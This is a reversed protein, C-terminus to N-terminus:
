VGPDFAIVETGNALIVEGGPDSDLNVVALGIDQANHITGLAHTWIVENSGNVAYVSYPPEVEWFQVTAFVVDLVGDGDIDGLAHIGSKTRDWLEVGHGDLAISIGPFSSSLVVEMAGDGTIDGVSLFMGEQEQAAIWELNGGPDYATVQGGGSIIEATGDGDVDAILVDRGYWSKEISWLVNGTQGDLLFVMNDYNEVAVEMDGDGDVDRADIGQGYGGGLSTEWLREGTAGDLLVAQGGGWPYTGASAVVDTDGDGDVDGYALDVVEVDDVFSQWIRSGSRDLACVIGRGGSDFDGLSTAVVELIGDGNVDVIDAKVSKETEPTMQYSWLAKGDRGDLIVVDGSDVGVAIEPVGDENLDGTAYGDGWSDIRLLANPSAYTWLIGAGPLVTPVPTELLDTPEPPVIVGTPEPTDPQGTPELTLLKTPSAQDTKVPTEKPEGTLLNPLLIGLIVGVVGLALVAGAIPWLPLKRRPRTEAAGADALSVGDLAPPQGGGAVDAEEAATPLLETAPLERKAREPVKEPIAERVARVFEGADAFRGEADKALAKLILREVAEPLSPNLSRPPPLPDHLHKVFIAPPTEAKFPPRGTAMEYLIIGLSYIDSRGDLKEGKIQEPSMYAPTGLIAGTQTFKTTKEVIKAIGFDTLLCNGIEDILINTPKVDRHVLGRAHAYALADGVQSLIKRIQKLPLPDGVLLSALTGTEVFPMVIYTYGDQTGFDHVPLIHVHQLSAIVKAEQEFRGVFEPDSAFHRPLIKLAVYRDMAPQYAKYVAAMGGEGLPAVIRYQGLQKGTLDEM